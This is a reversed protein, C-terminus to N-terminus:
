LDREFLRANLQDTKDLGSRDIARLRTLFEQRKERAKDMNELTLSGLQDDYDRVGLSTAFTPSQSLTWSWHDDLLKQFEDAPAAITPMASVMSLATFVLAFRKM